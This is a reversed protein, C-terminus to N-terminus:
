DQHPRPQLVPRAHRRHHRREGAPAAQQQMRRQRRERQKYLASAVYAMLAAAYLYWVLLLDAACKAPADGLNVTEDPQEVATDTTTTTVFFNATAHPLYEFCGAAEDKNNNSPPLCLISPLWSGVWKGSNLALGDWFLYYKEAPQLLLRQLWVLTWSSDAALGGEETESVVVRRGLSGHCAQAHGFFGQVLGWSVTSLWVTGIVVALELLRGRLDVGFSKKLTTAMGGALIGIVIFSFPLLFLGLDYMLPDRLIGPFSVLCLAGYVVTSWWLRVPKYCVHKHIIHWAVNQCHRSCYYSRLCRVCKWRARRRCLSCAWRRRAVGRKKLLRRARCYLAVVPSMLVPALPRLWRRRVVATGIQWMIHPNRLAQLVHPPMADLWDEAQPERELAHVPRSTPPPLAYRAGCTECNLGNQAAPHRSRCRWQEVCLYHVFAMSGSCECPALMPNDMMHQNPAYIPHPLVPGTQATKSVAAYKDTNEGEEQNNALVGNETEDEEEEEDDDEMNGSSQRSSVRFVPTPRTRGGGEDAENDAAASPQEDDADDHLGERCIRCFVPEMTPSVWNAWKGATSSPTALACVPPSLGDDYMPLLKMEDSSIFKLGTRLCALSPRRPDLSADAASPTVLGEDGGDEDDDDDEDDEDDDEEDDPIRELEHVECEKMEEEEDQKDEDNNPNPVRVTEFLNAELGEMTATADKENAPSTEKAETTEIKLLFNWM